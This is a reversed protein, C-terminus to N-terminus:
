SFRSSPQQLSFRAYFRVYLLLSFRLFSLLFSLECLLGCSRSCADPLWSFPGSLLLSTWQWSSWQWFASQWARRLSPLECSQEDPSLM